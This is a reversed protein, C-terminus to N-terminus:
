GAVHVPLLEDEEATSVSDTVRKIRFWNLLPVASVDFLDPPEIAVRGLALLNMVRISFPGTFDIGRGNEPLIANISGDTLIRLVSFPYANKGADICGFGTINGLRRLNPRVVLDM